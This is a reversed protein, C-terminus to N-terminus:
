VFICVYIGQLSCIWGCLITDGFIIESDESLSLFNNIQDKSEALNDIVDRIIANQSSTGQTILLTGNAQVIIDASM